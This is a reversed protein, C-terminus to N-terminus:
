KESSAANPIQYIRPPVIYQHVGLVVAFRQPSWLFSTTLHPTWEASLDFTFDYVGSRGLFAICDTPTALTQVASSAKCRVFANFFNRLHYYLFIAPMFRKIAPLHLATYEFGDLLPRDAEVLDIGQDVIDLAL